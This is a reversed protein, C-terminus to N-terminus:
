FSESEVPEYTATITHKHLYIPESAELMGIGDIDFRNVPRGKVIIDCESPIEVNELLAISCCVPPANQTSRFCALREGNLVMHDRGLLVDSHNASLFDIGLAGDIKIDAFLIEHQLNQSSLTINIKAKGYFPSCEGTATILQTNVHTLNPLHERPWIDLLDKRVITANSGTDM